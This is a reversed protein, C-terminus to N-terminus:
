KEQNTEIHSYGIPKLYIGQQKKINKKKKEAPMVHNSSFSIKGQMIEKEEEENSKNEINDFNEKQIINDTNNITNQTQAPVGLDETVRLPKKQINKRPIKTTNNQKQEQYSQSGIKKNDFNENSVKKPVGEMEIRNKTIEKQVDTSIKKMETNEVENNQKEAQPQTKQTKLSQVVDEKINVIDKDEINQIKEEQTNIKQNNVVKHLQPNKSQIEYNISDVGYQNQEEKKITKEQRQIINQEEVQTQIKQTKLSQVVEKKINETNKQTIKEEKEQKQIFIIKQEQPDINLVTNEDRSKFLILLINREDETLGKTADSRFVFEGREIMSHDNVGLIKEYVIIWNKITPKLPKLFPKTIISRSTIIQGIIKPYKELAKILSLQIIERNKDENKPKISKIAGLLKIAEEPTINCIEAVKKAFNGETIEGFFYQRVTRSFDETQADQLHYKKEVRYIFDIVEDSFLLDQIKQPLSHIKQMRVRGENQEKNGYIDSVLTPYYKQKEYYDQM